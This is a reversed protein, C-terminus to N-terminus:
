DASHSELQAPGFIHLMGAPQDFEFVYRLDGARTKFAAVIWGTAQYSGGVKRARDGAQLCAPPAHLKSNVILQWKSNVILQWARWGRGCAPCSFPTGPSSEQLERTVTIRHGCTCDTYRATETM